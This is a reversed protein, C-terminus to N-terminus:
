CLGTAEVPADKRLEKKETLKVITRGSSVIVSAEAELCTGHWLRILIQENELLEAIATPNM